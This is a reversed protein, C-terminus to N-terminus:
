ARDRLIGLERAVAAFDPLISDPRDSYATADTLRSVGFGALGRWWQITWNVAHAPDDGLSVDLWWCGDARLPADFGFRMHRYPPPKQAEATEVLFDRLRHLETTPEDPM